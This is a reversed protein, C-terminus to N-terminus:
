KYGAPMNTPEKFGRPWVQYDNMNLRPRMLTEPLPCGSLLLYAFGGKKLMKNVQFNVKKKGSVIIGRVFFKKPIMVYREWSDSHDRRPRLQFTLTLVQGDSTEGCIIVKAKEFFWNHTYVHLSAWGESFYESAVPQPFNDYRRNFERRNIKGPRDDADWAILVVKQSEIIDYITRERDGGLIVIPCGEVTGLYLLDTQCLKAFGAKTVRGNQDRPIATPKVIPSNYFVVDGAKLPSAQAAFSYLAMMALVAMAVLVRIKM